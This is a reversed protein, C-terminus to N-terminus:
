DQFKEPNKRKYEDMAQLFEEAPIGDPHEKDRFDFSWEEEQPESIEFVPKSRKIVTFRKGKSVAEIVAPLDTRLQKLTITTNM